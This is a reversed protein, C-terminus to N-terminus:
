RASSLRVSSSNSASGTFFIAATPPVRWGEMGSGSSRNSGHRPLLAPMSRLSPGSSSRIASITEEAVGRARENLSELARWEARTPRHDLGFNEGSRLYRIDRAPDNWLILDVGDVLALETATASAWQGRPLHGNRQWYERIDRLSRLLADVNRVLQSRAAYSDTEAIRAVQAQQHDKLVKWTVVTILAIFGALLLSTVVRKAM